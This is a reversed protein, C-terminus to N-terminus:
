FLDHKARGGESRQLTFNKKCSRGELNKRRRITIKRNFHQVYCKRLVSNYNAIEWKGIKDDM